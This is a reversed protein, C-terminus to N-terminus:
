LAILSTLFTAMEKWGPFPAFIILAILFNLSIAYIPKKMIHSLKGLISPLYGNHVMAGLSKLSISFYILGAM